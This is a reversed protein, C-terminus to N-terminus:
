QNAEVVADMIASATPFVPQAELNFLVAVAAQQEPYLYLIGSFGAVGGIQWVVNRGKEAGINCGYGKNTVVGGSTHKATWMQARSEESLLMGDYLAVVFNALDLVSGSLGGGPLKISLDDPRALVPEERGPRYGTARLPNDTAADGVIASDMGAPLFVHQQMYRAYDMGSGGEIACGVVNYGPTSYEEQTGPSFLLPDNEFVTLTSEITPFLTQNFREATTRWHRIGAQHALLHHLTIPSDYPPFALCYRQVPDDLVIRGDEVLKMAAAATIMKSISALRYITDPAAARGEDLAAVGYGEAWVLKGGWIVAVSCGPTQNDEMVGEIVADIKDTVGQPLHAQASVASSMVTLCAALLTFGLSRNCRHM